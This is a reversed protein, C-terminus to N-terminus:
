EWPFPRKPPPIDKDVPPSAIINAVGGLIGKTPIQNVASLAAIKTVVPGKNIEPHKLTGKVPVKLVYNSSVSRIGFSHALTDAPLGLYLNLSQDSLDIQGWTCLHIASALLFDARGLNLTNNSFSFDFPALWVNVPSAPSAGLLSLVSSLRSGDRYRFKGLAATGQGSKNTFSFEGSLTLQADILDPYLPAIPFNQADITFSQKTGKVTITSGTLTFEDGHIQGNMEEVQRGQYILSAKSLSFPGSFSWFPAQIALEEIDGSADEKTWHINRFIQPGTWSFRTPGLHVTADTKTAIYKELLPRTLPTSALYPLSLVLLLILSLFIIFFRKM